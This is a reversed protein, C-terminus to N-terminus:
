QNLAGRPHYYFKVARETLTIPANHKNSHIICFSLGPSCKLLANPLPWVGYHRMIRIVSGNRCWYRICFADAPWKYIFCKALVRGKHISINIESQPRLRWRNNGSKWAAASSQIRKRACKELVPNKVRTRRLRCITMSTARQQTRKKKIIALWRALRRTKFSFFFDFEGLAVRPLRSRIM